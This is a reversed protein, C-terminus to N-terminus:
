FFLCPLFFFFSLFFSLFFCSLPVFLTLIDECKMWPLVIGLQLIWVRGVKGQKKLKGRLTWTYVIRRNRTSPHITYRGQMQSTHRPATDLSIVTNYLMLLQKGKNPIGGQPYRWPAVTPYQTPHKSRQAVKSKGNYYVHGKIDTRNNQREDLEASSLSHAYTTYWEPTTWRWVVKFIIGNTENM